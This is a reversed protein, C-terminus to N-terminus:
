RPYTYSLSNKENVANLQKYYIKVRVGGYKKKVLRLPSAWGSKRPRVKGSKIMDELVKDFDKQFHYM